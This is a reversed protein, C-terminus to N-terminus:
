FALSFLCSLLVGEEKSVVTSHFGEGGARVMRFFFALLCESRLKILILVNIKSGNILDSCKMM